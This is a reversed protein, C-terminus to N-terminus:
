CEASLGQVDDYVVLAVRASAKQSKGCLASLVCLFCHLEHTNAASNM